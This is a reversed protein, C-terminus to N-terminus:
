FGLIRTYFETSRELDAVQLVIHGLRTISFDMGKPSIMSKLREINVAM